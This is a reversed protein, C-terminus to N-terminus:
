AHESDTHNCTGGASNRNICTYGPGPSASFSPCGCGSVTCRGTGMAPIPQDSQSFTHHTQQQTATCGALEPIDTAAAWTIPRRKVNQM